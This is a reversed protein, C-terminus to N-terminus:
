RTEGTNKLAGQQQLWLLAADIVADKDKNGAIHTDPIIPGRYLKGTRDAMVTSALMMRAGDPLDYAGNGTTLGWTPEGFLRTQSNGIFSIVVTEGSSGTRSGTLVAIPLKQALRVPQTVSLDPEHGWYYTGDRYSWSEKKGSAEVLSGLRGTDFLPGLGAIMPAMNGGTNQRLDIIWGRVNMKGLGNLLKQLSDSYAIILKQNGSHFPPVTVYGYGNIIKGTPFQVASVSSGSNEWNKIEEPTMFFSHHDGFPRLTELLYEVALHCERYSSAQGAIKLARSRMVNIDISDGFLSHKKITDCAATIYRLALANSRRNNVPVLVVRYNDFGAVGKGYLIAGIKISCAEEPCVLEVTYTEWYRKGKIWRVSYFGGMDKTAILSGNKDYIGVNLGAGKGEVSDTMIRASVKLLQLGKGAPITAQQEAFGVSQESTGTIRLYRNKGKTAASIAKKGGWSKQWHCFGTGPSDCLREFDLNHFSQSYSFFPVLLFIMLSFSYEPCFLQCKM